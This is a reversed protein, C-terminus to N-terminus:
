GGISGLDYSTKSNTREDRGGIIINATLGFKNLIGRRKVSLAESETKIVMGSTIITNCSLVTGEKGDVEVACMECRGSPKIRPDSCLNPISIGAATAVDFITQGKVATVSQGDITLRTPALVHNKSLLIEKNEFM